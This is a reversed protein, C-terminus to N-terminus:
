MLGWAKLIIRLGRTVDMGDESYVTGKRACTRTPCNVWVTSEGECMKGGNTPPPSTCSRTRVKPPDAGRRSDKFCLPGQCEGDEWASRRGIRRQAHMCLVCRRSKLFSVIRTLTGLIVAAVCWETWGGPVYIPCDPEHCMYPNCREGMLVTYGQAWANQPFALGCTYAARSITRWIFGGRADNDVCKVLRVQNPIAPAPSDTLIIHAGSWIAKALIANPDVPLPVGDARTRVMFNKQVSDAINETMPDNALIFATDPLETGVPAFTFFLRDKLVPDPARYM